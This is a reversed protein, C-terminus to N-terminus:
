QRKTQKGGFRSRGLSAAVRQKEEELAEEIM